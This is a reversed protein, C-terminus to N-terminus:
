GVDGGIALGRSRIMHKVISAIPRPLLFLPRPARWQLWCYIFFEQWSPHTKTKFELFAYELLGASIGASIGYWDALRSIHLKYRALSTDTLRHAMWNNAGHVRYRVHPHALLRVRGGLICAGLILCDDARTRWDARVADPLDLVKVALAYRMSISSTPAQPITRLFWAPLINLGRDEDHRRVHWVGSARDFKVLNSLVLDAPEEGGYASELGALYTREWLDDADLFCVVDGTTASCGTIFAALQGRNPQSILRVAPVSGFRAALRERSDDTSGDDVVVVEVPPLSQALASEVAECVFEAYNYCSIVVSYRV